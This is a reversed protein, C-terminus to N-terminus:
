KKELSDASMRSRHVAASSRSPMAWVRGRYLVIETARRAATAASSSCTPGFYQDTGRPVTNYGLAFRRRDLCLRRTDIEMHWMSAKIVGCDRLGPLRRCVARSGCSSVAGVMPTGCRQVEGGHAAVVAAVIALGLGAGGHGGDAPARGTDPAPDGPVQYFREFVRQREAEALGKGATSSRSRWAVPQGSWGCRPLPGPRPTRGSTAWCTRWSRGSGPPTVAVVAAHGEVHLALPRDPEM